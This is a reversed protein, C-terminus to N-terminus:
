APERFGSVWRFVYHAHRICSLLYHGCAGCTGPEELQTRRMARRTDVWDSPTRWRRSM